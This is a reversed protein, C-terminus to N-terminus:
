NSGNLIPLAYEQFTLYALHLTALSFFTLTSFTVFIQLINALSRFLTASSSADEPTIWTSLLVVLIAAFLLIVSSLVIPYSMLRAKLGIKNKREQASMVDTDFDYTGVGSSSEYGFSRFVGTVASEACRHNANLFSESQAYKGFMPQLSSSSVNLFAAQVSGLDVRLAEALQNMLKSKTGLGRLGLIDEGHFIIYRRATSSLCRKGFAHVMTNIEAWLMSVICGWPEQDAGSGSPVPCSYKWCESLKKLEKHNLACKGGGPGINPYMTECRNLMADAAAGFGGHLSKFDDVQIRLIQLNTGV